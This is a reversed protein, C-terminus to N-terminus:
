TESSAKALSPAKCESEKKASSACLRARCQEAEAVSGLTKCQQLRAAPTGRKPEKAKSHAVLAALLAVDTDTHAAPKKAQAAPKKKLVPQVNMAMETQQVRPKVVSKAPVAKAVVVPKKVPAKAAARAPAPKAMVLPAAQPELLKTLEDPGEKDADGAAAPSEVVPADELIAATSVQEAEASAVASESALAVAPAAVSPLPATGALVIEKEGESTLWVMSGAGLALAAAAAILWTLKGRRAKGAGATTGAPKADLGSLIRHRDAEAQQENSLLSPRGSTTPRDDSHQM